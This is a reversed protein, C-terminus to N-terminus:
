RETRHPRCEPPQSAYHATRPHYAGACACGPHHGHQRAADRHPGASAAARDGGASGPLASRGAAPPVVLLPPFPPQMWTLPWMVVAALPPSPWIQPRRVSSNQRCSALHTSDQLMWAASRMQILIYGSLGRTANRIRSAPSQSASSLRSETAPSRARARLCTGRLAGGSHQGGVGAARQRGPRGGRRGAAPRAVGGGRHLGGQLAARRPMGYTLRRRACHSAPSSAM